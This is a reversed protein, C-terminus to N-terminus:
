SYWVEFLFGAGMDMSTAQHLTVRGDPLELEDGAEPNAGECELLGIKRAKELVPGKELGSRGGASKLSILRAPHSEEAIDPSQGPVPESTTKRILSVPLVIEGAGDYLRAITKKLSNLKM